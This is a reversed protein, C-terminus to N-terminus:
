IRYDNSRVQILQLSEMWISSRIMLFYSYASRMIQLCLLIYWVHAFQDFIPHIWYSVKSYIAMSCDIIGLGTLRQECQARLVPLMLLKQQKASLRYWPSNYFHEGIALLDTTIRESFYFYVFTIGVNITIEILAVCLVMFNDSIEIVFLNIAITISCEMTLMFSILQMIDCFSHAVSSPFYNM